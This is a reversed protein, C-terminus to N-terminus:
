CRASSRTRNGQRDPVDARRQERAPQLLEGPQHPRRCRCICRRRSRRGAPRRRARRLQLGRGPRGDPADHVEPRRPARLSLRGPGEGAAADRGAGPFVDNFGPARRSSRIAAASRRTSSTRRGSARRTPRGSSRRRPLGAGVQRRDRRRPAARGHVAADRPRPLRLQRRRRLLRVRGGPDAAGLPMEVSPTRWTVPLSSGAMLPFGMRRSTDYMEKAWEWNWSLHKDNFVPVSRGSAKFVKSSRSSSSTARTCADPGERQAPLPRARRDAARRGRRAHERRADAGRRDDSLDEDGPIAAAADQQPRRRRDPRRLAVGSGDDPIITRATGATAKSSAISSTSPTPSVQLLHHLHGRAESAGPAAGAPGAPRSGHRSAM